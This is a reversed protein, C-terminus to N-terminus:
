NLNLERTKGKMVGINKLQEFALHLEDDVTSQSVAAVSATFLKFVDKLADTNRLALIQKEDCLQNMESMDCQDMGCVILRMKAKGDDGKDVYQKLVKRCSEKMNDDTPLGDTVLFIIPKFCAVGENLMANKRKRAAHVAIILASYLSTLGSANIMSFDDGIESMPSFDKLITVSSDFTIVCLEVREKDIDSIASSNVFDKAYRKVLEIRSVGETSDSAYMSGSTDFCLVVIPHEGHPHYEKEEQVIDVAVTQQTPMGDDPFDFMDDFNFNKVAM